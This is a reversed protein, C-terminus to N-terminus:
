ATYASMNSFFVIHGELRTIKIELAVQFVSKATFLSCLAFNHNTKLFVLILDSVMGVTGYNFLRSKGVGPRNILSYSKLKDM